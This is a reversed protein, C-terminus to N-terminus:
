GFYLGKMRVLAKKNYRVPVGYLEINGKKIVENDIDKIPTVDVGVTTHFCVDDLEAFRHLYLSTCVGVATGQDETQTIGNGKIPVLPIDNYHPILRGFENKSWNLAHRERAKEQFYAWLNPNMAMVQPDVDAIMQDLQRFFIKESAAVDLDLGNAALAIDYAADVYTSFGPLENGAGTGIYMKAVLKKGFNRAVGKFRSSKLAPINMHTQLDLKDISVPLGLMKVPVSSPTKNLNDDAGAYDAGKARSQLGGTPDDTDKYPIAEATTPYFEVFNLFPAAKIAEDLVTKHLKDKKATVQRINM